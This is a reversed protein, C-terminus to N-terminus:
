TKPTGKPPRPKPSELYLALKEFAKRRHSIRNKATEDLEAFTKEYDHKAFVGDYGFGKRGSEETSIYGECIGTAVKKVEDPSALALCCEYYAARELGSRNQLEQLLKRINESDTADDGAFYKSLNAQLNNPDSLAPVVLGSDDALVWKNLTKAAHIAKTEANEQLTKGQYPPPTYHPYNLLSTLDPPQRLLAKFLDRIEKIKHVNHSAIVIEM